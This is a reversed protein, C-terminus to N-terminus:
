LMQKERGFVFSINSQPPPSKVRKARWNQSSHLFSLSPINLPPCRRNWEVVAGLHLPVGGEQQRGGDDEDGDGPCPRTLSYLMALQVATLTPVQAFKM